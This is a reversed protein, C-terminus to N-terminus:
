ICGFNVKRHSFFGQTCSVQFKIQTFVIIEGLLDKIRLSLISTKKVTLYFLVEDHM